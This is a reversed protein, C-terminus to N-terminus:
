LIGQKQYVKRASFEKQLGNAQAISDFGQPKVPGIHRDSLRAVPDHHSIRARQFAYERIQHLVGDDMTVRCLHINLHAPIRSPKANGYDIVPAAKLTVQALQTFQKHPVRAAAAAANSQVDHPTQQCCHVSRDFETVTLRAPQQGLKFQRLTCM